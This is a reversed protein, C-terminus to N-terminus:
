KKSMADLAKQVGQLALSVWGTAKELKHVLGVSVLGMGFKYVFDPVQYKTFLPLVYYAVVILLGAISKYGDLKQMFEAM